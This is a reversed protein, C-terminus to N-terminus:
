RILVEAERLFGQLEPDSSRDPDKMLTRLQELDARAQSTQGAKFRAM